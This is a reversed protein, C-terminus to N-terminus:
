QQDPPTGYKYAPDASSSYRSRVFAFMKWLDDANKIIGGFPPMPGVVHEQGIRTYGAKQLADSGLTVLRFITDDDGGYVWIDNTLPPCMGGGAGGGHCGSCGYSLFLSQGQAVIDAQTDKYPNKLKGKPTSAVLDTPKIKTYDVAKATDAAIATDLTYGIAAVAFALAIGGLAKKIM